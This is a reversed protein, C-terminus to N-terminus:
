SQNVGRLEAEGEYIYNRELTQIHSQKAAKMQLAITYSFAKISRHSNSVEQVPVQLSFTQFCSRTTRCSNLCANAKTLGFPAETDPHTIVIDKHCVSRHCQLFQTNCDPKHTYFWALGECLCAQSLLSDGTLFDFASKGRPLFERLQWKPSIIHSIFNIGEQQNKRVADNGLLAM